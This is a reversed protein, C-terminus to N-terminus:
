RRILVPLAAALLAVGSLTLLGLVIARFVAPSIGAYLRAGLLSPILMAPAIIAFLPIMDRRAIGTALYSAFTVLLMALNFNQIVARQVDKEFDRLTCWLTPVVGTFGGLAGMFGGAAGALADAGRGGRTIRPLRASFMMLPCMVVLLLGLLGKFLPVDLRPLIYIGLPIGALGGLVFPLLRQFDFGRRVTAAAILQGTLAGFVALAAALQPDLTWAWISMATLGFGFGSLGQVFGALVAGLIVTVILPDVPDHRSRRCQPM